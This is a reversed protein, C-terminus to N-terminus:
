TTGEKQPQFRGLHERRYLEVAEPTVFWRDGMRFARLKGAQRQRRLTSPAIGLETAAEVITM